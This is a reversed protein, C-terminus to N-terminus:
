AKVERKKVFFLTIALILTGWAICLFFFNSAPLAIPPVHLGIGMSGLEVVGGGGFGNCVSGIISDGIPLVYQMMDGPTINYGVLFLYVLPLLVYVFTSMLSKPKKFRMSFLMYLSVMLFVFGICALMSMWIGNPTRGFNSIMMLVVFMYLVGVFISSLLVSSLFKGMLTTATDKENEKKAMSSSFACTIAVAAMPVFSMLIASYLALSVHVTPLFINWIVLFGMGVALTLVIFVIPTVMKRLTIKSKLDSMIVSALGGIPCASNM